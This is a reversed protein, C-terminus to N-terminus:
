SVQIGDAVESFAGKVIRMSTEMADAKGGFHDISSESYSRYEDMFEKMRELISNELEKPNKLLNGQKELDEYQKLKEVSVAIMALELGSLNSEKLKRLEEVTGIERYQQIEELAKIALDFAKHRDVYKDATEEAKIRKILDAAMWEKMDDGGSFDFGKIAPKIINRYAPASFVKIIQEAGGKRKIVLGDDYNHLIWKAVLCGIANIIKQRM